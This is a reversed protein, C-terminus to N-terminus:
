DSTSNWALDFPLDLDVISRLGTVPDYYGEIAIESIGLLVPITHHVAQLWCRQTQIFRNFASTLYEPPGVEDALLEAASNAQCGIIPHKGREAEFVYMAQGWGAELLLGAEGFAARFCLQNPNQQPFVNLTAEPDFSKLFELVESDSWEEEIVESRAHCSIDDPFASVRTARDPYDLSRVYHLIEIPTWPAPFYRGEPAGFLSAVLLRKLAKWNRNASFVNSSCLPTFWRLAASRALDRRGITQATIVQRLTAATHSQIPSYDFGVCGNSRARARACSLTAHGWDADAVCFCLNTYNAFYRHAAESAAPEGCLLVLGEAGGARLEQICRAVLTGVGTLDLSLFPDQARLDTTVYYPGIASWGERALSFMATTLDNLGFSFVDAYAALSSAVACLRPTELMIGFRVSPRAEPYDLLHRDFIMRVARVEELSSASPLTIVLNVPGERSAAASAAIAMGIQWDYFGNELAWRPGRITSPINLLGSRASPYNNLAEHLDIDILRYNALEGESAALLELFCHLLQVQVEEPIQAPRKSVATEELYDQFKSAASSGLIQMESRCLGVCRTPMQAGVSGVSLAVPNDTVHDIWTAIAPIPSDASPLAGQYIGGDEERISIIEGSRLECPGLSLSQGNHLLGHVRTVVALGLSRALITIHSAPGERGLILGSCKELRSAAAPQLSGVALIPNQGDAAFQAAEALSLALPGSVCRDGQSQGSSLLKGTALYKSPARCAANAILLDLTDTPSDAEGILRALRRSNALENEQKISLDALQIRGNYEVFAAHFDCPWLRALRQALADVDASNSKGYELGSGAARVKSLGAISGASLKAFHLTAGLSLWVSLGPRVVVELVAGTEVAGLFGLRELVPEILSDRLVAIGSTAAGLMVPVSLNADPLVGDHLHVVALPVLTSEASQREPSLRSWIPNAGILRGLWSGLEQRDSRPKSAPLSGCKVDITSIGAASAIELAHVIPALTVKADIPSRAGAERASWHVGNEDFASM